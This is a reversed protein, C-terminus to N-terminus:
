QEFGVYLVVVEFVYSKLTTAQMVVFAGFRWSSAKYIDVQYATPNVLDMVCCRGRNRLISGKLIDVNPWDKLTVILLALEGM